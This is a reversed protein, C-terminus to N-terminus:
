SSKRVKAKWMHAFFCVGGKGRARTSVHNTRQGRPKLLAGEGGALDGESAIITLALFTGTGQPTYDSMSIHWHTTAYILRKDHPMYIDPEIIEREVAFSTSYM